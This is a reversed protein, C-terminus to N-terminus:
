KMEQLTAEPAFGAARAEEESEGNEGELNPKLRQWRLQQEEQQKQQQKQQQQSLKVAGSM